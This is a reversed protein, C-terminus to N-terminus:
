PNVGRGQAANPSEPPTGRHTDSVHLTGDKWFAEIYDPDDGTFRAAEVCPICAIVLNARGDSGDDRRFQIAPSFRKHELDDLRKRDLVHSCALAVDGLRFSIM